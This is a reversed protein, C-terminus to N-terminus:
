TDMTAVQSQTQINMDAYNALSLWCICMGTCHMFMTFITGDCPFLSYSFTFFIPTSHLPSSLLSPNGAEVKLEHCDDRVIIVLHQVLQRALFVERSEKSGELLSSLTELVVKEAFSRDLGVSSSSSSSSSSSFLAEFYDLFLDSPKKEGRARYGTATYGSSPTLLSLALLRHLRQPSQAVACITMLTLEFLAYFGREGRRDGRDSERRYIGSASMAVENTNVRGVMSTRMEEKSVCSKRTVPSRNMSEGAASSHSQLLETMRSLIGHELLLAILVSNRSQAILLLACCVDSVLGEDKHM